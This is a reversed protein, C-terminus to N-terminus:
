TGAPNIFRYFLFALAACIAGQLLKIILIKTKSIDGPLFTLTQMYVSLGSFGLSFATLAFSLNPSIFRNESLLSTANGIELIPSIYTTLLLNKSIAFFIGLLTSFFVIYSSVNLSSYVANKISKTLDFNQESKYISYGIKCSKSKSFFGIIFASFFERSKANIIFFLPLEGIFNKINKINFLQCLAM